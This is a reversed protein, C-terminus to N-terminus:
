FPEELAQWLCKLVQIDEVSVAKPLVGAESSACCTLLYLEECTSCTVTMPRPKEAKIM